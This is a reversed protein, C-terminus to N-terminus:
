AAKTDVSEWYPQQGNRSSAEADTPEQYFCKIVSDYERWISDVLESFRHEASGKVLLSMRAARTAAWYERIIPGQLLHRLNAEVQADAVHTIRAELMVQQLILNIYLFQRRRDRSLESYAPWVDALVEDNLALKTLEMHLMRLNAEATRSLAERQQSLETRQTKLERFQLTFTIVLAVLALGSLMASLAGFTEGILAWHQWKETSGFRSLLAVLGLSISIAAMVFLSVGSIIWIVRLSSHPTDQDHESRANM